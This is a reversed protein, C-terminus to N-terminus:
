RCGGGRRVTDGRSITKITTPTSNPPQEIMATMAVTRVLPAENLVMSGVASAAVEGVNAVGETVM